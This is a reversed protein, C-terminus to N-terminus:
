ALVAWHEVRAIRTDSMGQHGSLEAADYVASQIEWSESHGNLYERMRDETDEAGDLWELYDAENLRYNAYSEITTEVTVKVERYLQETSM